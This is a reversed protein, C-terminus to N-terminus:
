IMKGISKDRLASVIGRAFPGLDDESYARLVGTMVQSLASRIMRADEVGAKRLALEVAVAAKLAEETAISNIQKVTDAEGVVVDGAAAFILRAAEVLEAPGNDIILVPWAGRGMEGAHGIFKVNLCRIKKDGMQALMERSINTAVSFVMAERVLERLQGICSGVAADPLALVIADVDFELLSGVARLGLSAAVARAGENDADHLIVEHDVALRAALIKGMRGTGVLGIRM